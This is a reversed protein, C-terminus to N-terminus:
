APGAGQAGGWLMPQLSQPPIDPLEIICPPIGIPGDMPAEPIGVGAPTVAPRGTMM